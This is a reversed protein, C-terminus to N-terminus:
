ARRHRRRPRQRRRGSGAAPGPDAGARARTSRRPDSPARGARLLEVRDVGILDRRGGVAHRLAELREVLAPLGTRESIQHRVEARAHVRTLGEHDGAITECDTRRALHAGRTELADGLFGPQSITMMQPLLMPSMKRRLANLRPSCTTCHGSATASARSPSSNSTRDRSERAIRVLCLALSCAPAARAWPLPSEGCRRCRRRRGAALEGRRDRVLGATSQASSEAALRSSSSRASRRPADRRCPAARALLEARARRQADVGVQQRRGVAGRRERDVREVLDRAALRDERALGRDRVVVEDEGPLGFGVFALRRM